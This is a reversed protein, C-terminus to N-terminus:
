PPPASRARAPRAFCPRDASAGGRARCGASRAVARGAPWRRRAPVPRLTFGYCHREGDPAAVASIEVDDQTGFRGYAITSFRRLSGHERLQALMLPPDIGPRGVFQALPRGAVDDPRAWETIELFALNVATITGNWDGMQRALVAAAPSLQLPGFPVLEAGTWGEEVTWRAHAMFDTFHQGFGPAALISAREDDGVRRTTSTQPFALASM